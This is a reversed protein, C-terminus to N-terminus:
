PTKGGPPNRLAKVEEALCSIWHRNRNLEEIMGAQESDPLAGRAFKRLKLRVSEPPAELSRGEVETEARDLFGALIEFTNQM